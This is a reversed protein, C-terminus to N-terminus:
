GIVKLNLEGIKIEDGVTLYEREKVVTGNLFTGNTSGLDELIFDEEKRLIRAHYGSSYPDSLTLANNDKRGITFEGGLLFVAGIKLNENIGVQIVELGFKKKKLYSKGSGKLDKYMIILAYFIIAYIVAIIIIRFVLSIKDMVEVGSIQEIQKLNM